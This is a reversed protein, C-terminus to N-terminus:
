EYFRGLLPDQIITPEIREQGESQVPRRDEPSPLITFSEPLHNCTSISDALEGLLVKDQKRTVGTSAIGILARKVEM